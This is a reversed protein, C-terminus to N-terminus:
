AAEAAAAEKVVHFTCERYQEIQYLYVFIRKRWIVVRPPQDSKPLDVGTVLHGSGNYLRHHTTDTM